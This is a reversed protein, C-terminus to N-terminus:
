RSFTLTQGTLGSLQVSAIDRKLSEPVQGRRTPQIGFETWRVLTGTATPPVLKIRSETAVGSIVWAEGTPTFRVWAANSPQNAASVTPRVLSPDLSGSLKMNPFRPATWVGKANAANNTGDLSEYVGIFFENPEEAVVGLRMWVYTNKSIAHQRARELQGALTSAVVGPSQSTTLSDFVPGAATMLLSMVAIVVLMEVLTVGRRIHSRLPSFHIKSDKSKHSDM